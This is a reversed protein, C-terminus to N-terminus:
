HPSRPPDYHELFQNFLSELEDLKKIIKAMTIANQMTAEQIIQFREDYTAMIQEALSM